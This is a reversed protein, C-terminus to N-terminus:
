YDLRVAMEWVNPSLGKYCGNNPSGGSYVQSSNCTVSNGVNFVHVFNNMFRVHPNLYWNIGLTGIEMSGGNINRTNMDMLDFRAALEVAGWGGNWDFNRNPHLRDWAALKENWPRHEGTLYYGGQVYYGRVTDNQYGIGSVTSQMYETSLWAPGLVGALEAGFMSINNAQHSKVSKGNILVNNTLNGTSIWNTRDVPTDPQSQFAWGGNRLTGDPNYNNNVDRWSGWVGTHFLNGEKDKYPMLAGRGVIQYSINGSFNNRNANGIGLINNNVALAGTASNNSTDGFGSGVTETLLGGRLFWPLSFGDTKDGLVKGYSEATLGVQYKSYSEILANNPLSREIFPMYNNSTWSELSKGENQQGITLAFPKFHTYKIFADTIGATSSGNGRAFDYEFRYDFDKYLTGDLFIRARRFGASSAINTNPHNIDGSKQDNFAVQNDAQLRGGIRAKFNGDNSEFRLGGDGLRVTAADEPLKLTAAPTAAPAPAAALTPNKKTLNAYQDKTITGNKSLVELLQSSAMGEKGLMSSYQTKNISGNKLLIDLLEQDATSAYAGSGTLALALLVNVKKLSKSKM